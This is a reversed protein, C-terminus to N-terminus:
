LYDNVSKTTGSPQRFAPLDAPSLIHSVFHPSMHVFQTENHQSTLLKSTPTIYFLFPPLYNLIVSIITLMIALLEPLTHAGRGALTRPSFFSTIKTTISQDYWCRASTGHTLKNFIIIAGSHLHYQSRRHNRSCLYFFATHYSHLRTIWRVMACCFKFPQSPTSVHRSTM